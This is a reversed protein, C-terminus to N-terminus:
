IYYAFMYTKSENVDMQQAERSINFNKGKLSQNEVGGEWAFM